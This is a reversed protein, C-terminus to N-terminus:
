IPCAPAQAHSPTHTRADARTHAHKHASCFKGRNKCSTAYCKRAELQAGLLLLEHLTWAGHGSGSTSLVGEDDPCEDDSHEDEVLPTKFLCFILHKTKGHKPFTRIESRAALDNGNRSVAAYSATGRGDLFELARLM